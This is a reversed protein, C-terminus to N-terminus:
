LKKRLVTHRVIGDVFYQYSCFIPNGDIDFDVEKLNLVPTGIPIQLQQALPADAVVPCLDTLDMYASVDCFEEMFHFILQKCDETTYDKKILSKAFVDEWFIAPRGDATCLNAVRIVPAGEELHLHEATMADAPQESVQICTASPEFGSQRIMDQFETEIDMRFPVNLVHHNILTGIGHRRTIFGERELAALVDRLQTRSIGLTEALEKEPPLHACSAYEGQQMAHFLRTRISDTPNASRSM